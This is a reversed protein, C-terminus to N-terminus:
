EARYVDGGDGRESSVDQSDDNLKLPEYYSMSDAVAKWTQLNLQPVPDAGVVFTTVLSEM